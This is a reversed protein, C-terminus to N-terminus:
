FRAGSPRRTEVLSRELSFFYYFDRLCIDPLFVRLAFLSSVGMQLVDRWLFEAIGSVECLCEGPKRRSRESILKRNVGDVKNVSHVQRSDQFTVDSVRSRLQPDYTGSLKHRGGDKNLTPRHARIYVAEKVGKFFFSVKM